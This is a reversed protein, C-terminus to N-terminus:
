LWLIQGSPDWLSVDGRVRERRSERFVPGQPSCLWPCSVSCGDWRQRPILPKQSGEPGRCLPPVPCAVDLLCLSGRKMWPSGKAGKLVWGTSGRDGFDGWFRAGAGGAGEVSFGLLGGAGCGWQSGSWPKIIMKERKKEAKEDKKGEREVQRM